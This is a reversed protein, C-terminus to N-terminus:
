RDPARGGLLTCYYHLLLCVEEQHDTVYFWAPNLGVDARPAAAVSCSMETRQHKLRSNEVKEEKAMM